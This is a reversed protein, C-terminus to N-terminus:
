AAEDEGVLEVYDWEDVDLADVAHDVGFEVRRDVVWPPLAATKIANVIRKVDSM